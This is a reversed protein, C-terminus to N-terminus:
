NTAANAQKFRDVEQQLVGWKAMVLELWQNQIKKYQGLQKAPVGQETCRPRGSEEFEARSMGCLVCVESRFAFRHDGATRDFTM